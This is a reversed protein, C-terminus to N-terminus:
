EVGLIESGLRDAVLRGELTLKLRDNSILLLGAEAWDNLLEDYQEFNVGPFRLKLGKLSIGENMRLGFILSDAALIDADLEEQNDHNLKSSGVGELWADISHPNNYRYGLYQSAASPGVGVWEQMHWTDLNHQCAYGPKAFNSVEYQQYGNTHLLAWTRAYFDAEQDIDRTVKGQSLKLYLATDEEFTLCYTSLHEPRLRFAEGLDAEWGDMTQGPISFILDLNVNEFGVDRILDYAKYIQNPAHLRGLSQLLEPNFSQVGMSIRTVGLAKLVELKDRKVTSPAMEITWEAPSMKFHSLLTEGLFELDKAPLLSPTGGGWFVTDAKIKKPFLMAMEQKMGRLYRDLEQRKPKEQYFSCFDCTSACFPIHCYVGLKQHISNKM